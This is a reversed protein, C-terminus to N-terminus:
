KDEMIIIAKTVVRSVVKKNPYMKKLRKLEENFERGCDGEVVYYNDKIGIIRDVM